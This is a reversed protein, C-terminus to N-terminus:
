YKFFSVDIRTGYLYERFADNWLDRKHGLHMRAKFCEELSVLKLVDFYDEHKVSEEYYNELQVDLNTKQVSISSAARSCNIAARNTSSINSNTSLSCFCPCQFFHSSPPKRVTNRFLLKFVSSTTAM